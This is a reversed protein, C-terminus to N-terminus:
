RESNELAQVEKVLFFQSMNEKKFIFLNIINACKISKM